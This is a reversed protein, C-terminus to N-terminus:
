PPQLIDSNGAALGFGSCTWYLDVLGGTSCALIEAGGDACMHNGRAEPRTLSQHLALRSKATHLQLIGDPIKLCGRQDCDIIEDRELIQHM